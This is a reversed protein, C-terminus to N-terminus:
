HGELHAKDLVRSMASMYERAMKLAEEAPIGSEVLEKYFAGVSAGMKKGAEPSYVTDMVAGVLDRILTPVKESVAELVGKLEEADNDGM